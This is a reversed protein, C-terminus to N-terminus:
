HKSAPKQPKRRLMRITIESKDRAAIAISKIESLELKVDNLINLIAQAQVDINVLETIVWPNRQIIESNRIDYTFDDHRLRERSRSRDGRDVDRRFLDSWSNWIRICLPLALIIVLLLAAISQMPIDPLESLKGWLWNLAEITGNHEPM